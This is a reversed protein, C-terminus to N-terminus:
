VALLWGLVMVLTPDQGPLKEGILPLLPSLLM